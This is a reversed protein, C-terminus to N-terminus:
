GCNPWPATGREHYLKLARKDQEYESAKAPDGHGGVSRWTPRSFQYKGRYKGDPSIARPNGGSECQAIQKLKKPLKVHRKGSSETKSKSGSPAASGGTSGDTAFASAATLALAGVVIAVVLFRIGMLRENM